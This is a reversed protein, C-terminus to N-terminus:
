VLNSSYFFEKQKNKETHHNPPVFSQPILSWVESFVSANKNKKEGAFAKIEIDSLQIKSLQQSKWRPIDERKMKGDDPSSLQCIISALAHTQQIGNQTCLHADSNDSIGRILGAKSNSKSLPSQGSWFATSIRFRRVENYSATVRYECLHEILRKEQVELGLAVQLISVRWTMVTKIMSSMLVVVKLNRQLKPSMISLMLLLSSFCLDSIEEMLLYKMLLQSIVKILPVEKIESFIKHAVRKIDEM